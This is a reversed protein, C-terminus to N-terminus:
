NYQGKHRLSVANGQSFPLKMNKRENGLKKSIDPVALLCLWRYWM